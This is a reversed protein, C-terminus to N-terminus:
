VTCIDRRAFWIGGASWALGGFALLVAMDALPWKAGRRLVILPQYYDLLSLFSVSKAPAWFEALFNLLFSALLIGFITAIASGRRDSFACVACALGAVALYLCCLNVVVALLRVSDPRREPEVSLMGLKHGVVGMAVLAMGSLTVVATEAAYVRWRSVPLGLLLDITGRDVEGAPVRTCLVIAQTWVIALVVPHVWAIAIVAEPALADGVDAGLLAKLITKLFPMQLIQASIDAQITPLVVGLIVEVSLMAASLIMVTVWAERLSKALLGPM